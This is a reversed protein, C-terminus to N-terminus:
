ATREIETRVKSGLSAWLKKYTQREKSGNPETMFGCWFFNGLGSLDKNRKLNKFTSQINQITM